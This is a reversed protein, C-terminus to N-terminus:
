LRKYLPWEQISFDKQFLNGYVNQYMHRYLTMDKYTLSLFAGFKLRLDVQYMPLTGQLFFNIFDQKLRSCVPVNTVDNIKHYVDNLNDVSSAIIVM